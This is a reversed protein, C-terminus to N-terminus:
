NESGRAVDIGWTIVADEGCQTQFPVDIEQHDVSDCKQCAEVEPFLECFNELFDPDDIDVPDPIEPPVPPICWILFRWANAFGLSQPPVRAGDLFVDDEFQYFLSSSQVYFCYCGEADPEQQSILPRWFDSPFGNTLDPADLVIPNVAVLNVEPNEAIVRQILARQANSAIVSARYGLEVLYCPSGPVPEPPVPLPELDDGGRDDERRSKCECNDSWLNIYVIKSLKRMLEGNDFPTLASVVDIYNIDELEIDAPYVRCFDVTNVEGEEGIEIADEAKILFRLTKLAKFLAQLLTKAGGGTPIGIDFLRCLPHTAGFLGCLFGTTINLTPPSGAKPQGGYKCLNLAM